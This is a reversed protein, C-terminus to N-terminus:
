TVCHRVIALKGCINTSYVNPCIFCLTILGVSKSYSSNRESQQFTQHRFMRGVENRCKVNWIVGGWGTWNGDEGVEGERDQLASSYCIREWGGKKIEIQHNRM